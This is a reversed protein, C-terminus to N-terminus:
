REYTVKLVASTGGTRIGRFQEIADTGVLVLVDNINLIHGESSTPDSGDYRYRLQATEVTIIARVAGRAANNIVEKKEAYTAATLEKATDAVTVSEYAYPQFIGAIVQNTNIFM